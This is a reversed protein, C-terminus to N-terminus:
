DWIRSLEDQLASNLAMEQMEAKVIRRAEEEPVGEELLTWVRLDAWDTPHMIMTSGRIDWGSLM